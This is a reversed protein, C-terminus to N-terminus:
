VKGSLLALSTARPTSIHKQMLRLISGNFYRRLKDGAVEPSERMGGMRIKRCKAKEPSRLFVDRAVVVVALWRWGDGAVKVVVLLWCILEM